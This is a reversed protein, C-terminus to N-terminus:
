AFVAYIVAVILTLLALQVVAAPGPIVPGAVPHSSVIRALNIGKTGIKIM